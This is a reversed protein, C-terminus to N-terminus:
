KFEGGTIHAHWGCGALQEGNREALCNISPQLTPKEMNGDWTWTHGGATTNPSIPVNCSQGPRLPCGYLIRDAAGNAGIIQWEGPQDPRHHAPINGCLVGHDARGTGLLSHSM